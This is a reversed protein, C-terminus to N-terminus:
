VPQKAPAPTDKAVPKDPAHDHAHDACTDGEAHEHDCGEHSAAHDHDCAAKETGCDHKAAHAADDGHDSCLACDSGSKTSVTTANAETSCTGFVCGTTVLNYGGYGLAGLGLVVLASTVLGSGCACKM